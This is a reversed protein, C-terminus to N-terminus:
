ANDTEIQCTRGTGKSLVEAMHSKLRRSEHAAVLASFQELRIRQAANQAPLPKSILPNRRCTREQEKSQQICIGLRLISLKKLSWGWVMSHIQYEIAQTFCKPQEERRPKSVANRASIPTKMSKKAVTPVIHWVNEGDYAYYDAFKLM